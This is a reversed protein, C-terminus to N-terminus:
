FATREERDVRILVWREQVQEDVARELEVLGLNACIALATRETGRRRSIRACQEGPVDSDVALDLEDITWGEDLGSPRSGWTPPVHWDVEESATRAPGLPDTSDNAIQALGTADGVLWAPRVTVGTPVPGIPVLRAAVRHADRSISDVRLEVSAPAMDQVSVHYLLIGGETLGELWHTAAPAQATGEQHAGGCAALWLLCVLGGAARRIV